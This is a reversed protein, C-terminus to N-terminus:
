ISLDKPNEKYTKKPEPLVPKSPRSTNTKLTNYYENVKAAVFNDDDEEDESDDERFRAPSITRGLSRSRFQLDPTGTISRSARHGDQEIMDPTHGRLLSSYKEYASDFDPTRVRPLTLDRYTNMRSHPVDSLLRDGRYAREM